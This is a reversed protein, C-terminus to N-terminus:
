IEMAPLGRRRKGRTDIGGIGTVGTSTAEVVDELSVLQDVRVQNIATAVIAPDLDNILVRDPASAFNAGARILAEFHSQCGGAFIVLDDLNPRLRRAVDVARAYDRSHHYSDLDKRDKNKLLGDHGTLVLIEPQYRALLEPLREAQKDEDVGVGFAEFGHGQYYNLSRTLFDRDGDLHLILGYREFYSQQTEGPRLRHRKHRTDSLGDDYIWVLDSVPATALLRTDLGKLVAVLQGNEEHISLVVFSLDCGYSRRAVRDGVAVKTM